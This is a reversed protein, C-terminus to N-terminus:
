CLRKRLHELQAAAERGGAFRAQPDKALLRLIWASLEEPLKPNIARPSPPAQQLHMMLLPMLEAHQFPTQGTFMEFAVVGLAYLDTSFGVTSFNNIQEPSMYEPTGAVMGVVTGGSIGGQKAIGFDMVKVAGDTTVFFNEPKVDRHFVGQDHAFQLGHAAQILYGVGRALPLPGTMEARLDKGELLEMTIFRHEGAVGLDYVRVINPHVLRRSMKLEQKFRGVLSPDQLAQTFLKIAVKENLELDTARFVVAMGGQGIKKELQYREAVVRGEEFIVPPPSAAPTPAPAPEPPKRVPSVEFLTNGSSQAGLAKWGQDGSLGRSISEVEDAVERNVDMPGSGHASAAGAAPGGSHPSTAGAANQSKPAAHPQADTQLRLAATAAGPAAKAAPSPAGPRMPLEPLEPLELSARRPAATSRFANDENLLRAKSAGGLQTASDLAVLRENADRYNPEVALVKQLVEKANELLDQKEYLKALTYFAELERADQPGSAIFQSLMHEAQFGLTNLSVSLKVTQLCAARYRSDTKQVRVLNDLCKGTDGVELYAQAAEYPQGAEAHLNAAEAVRGLQRAMRAAHGYQRLQVYGQLAPELKGRGELAQVSQLSIAAGGVSRQAPDGLASALKSSPAALLRAAGVPDGSKQLLDAARAREDLAVMLEVATLTEGARGLCVAAMLALKKKEPPLKRVEAPAVGLANILLQGAELFRRATSLLRAAEQPAAASLYAAVAADVNGRKELARAAEFADAAESM